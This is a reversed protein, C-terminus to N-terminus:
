NDSVILLSVFFCDVALYDSFKPRLIIPFISLEKAIINTGNRNSTSGIFIKPLVNKTSFIM